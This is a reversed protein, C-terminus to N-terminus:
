YYFGSYFDEEYRYWDDDFSEPEDDPPTLDPEPLEQIRRENIRDNFREAAVDIENDRYWTM